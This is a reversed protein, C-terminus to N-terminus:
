PVRCNMEVKVLAWWKDKDQDLNIRDVSKWGGRKLNIKIDERRRRPRGLPMKRLTKGGFGQLFKSRDWCKM